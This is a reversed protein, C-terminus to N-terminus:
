KLPARADLARNVELVNVRPEGFLRWQRGATHTALLARIADAPLGRAKALRPVQYDAAAPSLHPDLGSGSATVLDAPVPGVADPNETRVAAVRAAVDDVLKRSTPGLNGAGSNAADHGAGAASPRPHLYEPRTFSQGILSSGIVVGDREILSGNAQAPFVAQALGTVLLPYVLGTLGTLVVLLTLAPRLEKLM